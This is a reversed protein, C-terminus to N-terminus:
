PLSPLLFSGSKKPSMDVEILPPPTSGVGALFIRSNKVFNLFIIQM